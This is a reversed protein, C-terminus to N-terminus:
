HFVLLKRTDSISRLAKGKATASGGRRPWTLLVSRVLRCAVILLLLRLIEDLKMSFTYMIGGLEVVIKLVFVLRPYSDWNRTQLGLCAKEM